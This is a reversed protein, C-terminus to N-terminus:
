LVGIIPEMNFFPILLPGGKLGLVAV